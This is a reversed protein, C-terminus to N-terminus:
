VLHTISQRLLSYKLIMLAIVKANIVYPKISYINNKISPVLYHGYCFAGNQFVENVKLTCLEMARATHGDTLRLHQQLFDFMQIYDYVKLFDEEPRHGLRNLYRMGEDNKSSLIYLDKGAIEQLQTLNIGNSIFSPRAHAPCDSYPSLHTTGVFDIDGIRLTHHKELHDTSDGSRHRDLMESCQAFRSQVFLREGSTGNPLEYGGGCDVEDLLFIGAPMLSLTRLIVEGKHLACRETIRPYDNNTPPYLRFIGKSRQFETVTIIHKSYKNMTIRGNFVHCLPLGIYTKNMLLFVQPDSYFKIGDVRFENSRYPQIIPRSTVSFPQGPTARLKLKRTDPPLPLHDGLHGMLGFNQTGDAAFGNAVYAYQMSSTCPQQFGNEDTPQTNFPMIFPLTYTVQETPRRNRVLVDYSQEVLRPIDAQRM